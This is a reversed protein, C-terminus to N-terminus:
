EEVECGECPEVVCDVSVEWDAGVVVECSWVVPM